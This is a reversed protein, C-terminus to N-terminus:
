ARDKIVNGEKHEADKKLLIIIIIIIIHSATPSHIYHM